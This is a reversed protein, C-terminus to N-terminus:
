LGADSSTEVVQKRFDKIQQPHALRPTRIHPVAGESTEALIVYVDANEPLTVNERLRITGNQVVGKIANFLM